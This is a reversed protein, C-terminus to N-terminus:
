SAAPSAAQLAAELPLGAALARAIRRVDADRPRHGLALNLLPTTDVLEALPGTALELLFRQPETLPGPSEAGLQATLPSATGEIGALIVEASRLLPPAQAEDIGLHGLALALRGLRTSAQGHRAWVVAEKLAEAALSRNGTLRFAVELVTTLLAAEGTNREREAQAADTTMREVEARGEARQVKAQTLWTALNKLLADLAELQDPAEPGLSPASGEVSTTTRWPEAQVSLNQAAERFRDLTQAIRQKAAQAELLARARVAAEETRQDHARWEGYARIGGSILALAALPAVAPFFAAVKSLKAAPVLGVMGSVVSATQLQAAAAEAATLAQIRSGLLAEAQRAAAELDAVTAELEALLTRVAATRAMVRARQRTEEPDATLVRVSDLNLGAPLHGDDALRRM